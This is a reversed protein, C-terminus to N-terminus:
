QETLKKVADRVIAHQMDLGTNELLASAKGGCAVAAQVLRLVLYDRWIQQRPPTVGVVDRLLRELEPLYVPDPMASIGHCLCLIRDYNPITNSDLRAASYISTNNEWMDGPFTNKLVSAIVPVADRCQEQCLLVLLRNMQWYDDAEDHVGGRIVGTARQRDRYIMKGNEENLQRLLETLEAQGATDHYLMRCMDLLTKKFYCKNEAARRLMEGLGEPRALVVDNFVSAEDGALVRGLLSAATVAQSDQPPAIIAQKEQLLTQLPTLDLQTCDCGQKVCDAALRGAIWGISMVDPNMRLFNAGEQSSSIAKGTIFVGDLQEPLIAGLPVAAFRAKGLAPLAGLRGETCFSRGHPDFTSYADYITDKWRQGRSVTRVTVANRGKVRRSERPTLVPFLDYERTSRLIHKTCRMWEENDTPLLIDQDHHSYAKRGDTCRRWQSFNQTMQLQPDGVPADCGALACLLGEGTGDVTQVGRDSFLGDDGVSMVSVIRRKSVFSCFIQCGLRVQVGSKKAADSLFLMETVPNPRGNGPLKETFGRIREWMDQFLGNRNGCYIGVVGGQTRTGGLAPQREIVLTQAGREAASLAAWIGATGGGCVLVDHRTCGVSEAHYAELGKQPDYALRKGNLVVTDAAAGDTTEPLVVPDNRRLWGTLKPNPATLQTELFLPLASDCRLQAIGQQEQLKRLMASRNEMLFALTRSPTMDEPLVATHVLHIRQPDFLDPQQGELPAPLRGDSQMSTRVPLVTGKRIRTKEGSVQFSPAQLATADLVLSCPQTEIGNPCALLLGCVAGNKLLPAIARTYFVCRVGAQELRDLLAAKMAVPTLFDKKGTFAAIRAVAEPDCYARFTGLLDEGPYSGSTTLLVQHGQQALAVAQEMGYMTAGVIVIRM